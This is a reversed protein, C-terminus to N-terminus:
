DLSCCHCIMLGDDHALDDTLCKECEWLLLVLFDGKSGVFLHNSGIFLNTHLNSDIATQAERDSWPDECSPFSYMMEALTNLNFGSGLDLPNVM